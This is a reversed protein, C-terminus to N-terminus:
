QKVQDMLYVVSDTDLYVEGHYLVDFIDDGIRDYVRYVGFGCYQSYRIAEYIGDFYSVETNPYIQQDLATKGYISSLIVKAKTKQRDM